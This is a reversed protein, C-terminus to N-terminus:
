PLQWPVPNKCLLLNTLAFLLLSACHRTQIQITHLYCNHLTAVIAENISVLRKYLYIRLSMELYIEYLKLTTVKSQCM